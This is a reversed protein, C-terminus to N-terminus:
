KREHITDYYRSGYGEGDMFGMVAMWFVVFLLCSCTGGEAILGAWELVFGLALVWLLHFWWPKEKLAGEVGSLDIVAGDKDM